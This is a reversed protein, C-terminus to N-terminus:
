SRRGRGLGLNQAVVLRRRHFSGKARAYLRSAEVTRLLHRSRRGFYAELTRVAAKPLHLVRRRFARHAALAAPMIRRRRRFRLRFKSEFGFRCRDLRWGLRRRRNQAFEFIEPRALVIRLNFTEFAFRFLFDTRSRRRRNTRCAARV